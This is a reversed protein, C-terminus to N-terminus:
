HSFVIEPTAVAGAVGDKTLAMISCGAKAMQSCKYIHGIGYSGEAEPNLALANTPV